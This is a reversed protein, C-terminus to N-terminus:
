SKSKVQTSHVWNNIGPGKVSIVTIDNPYTHIALVKGTVIIGPSTEVTVIDNIQHENTDVIV